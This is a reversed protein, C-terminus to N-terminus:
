AFTRRKLLISFVGLWFVDYKFIGIRMVLIRIRMVLIRRALLLISREYKSKVHNKVFHHGNALEHPTVEKTKDLM